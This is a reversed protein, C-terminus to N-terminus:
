DARLSRMPDVRTARMAPRYVALAAVVTLLAATLAFTLPDLSRIGFLLGRLLRTLTAAALLGVLLGAAFVQFCGGRCTGAGAGVGAFAGM